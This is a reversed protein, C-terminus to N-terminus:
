MSVPIGVLDVRSFHKKDSYDTRQQKSEQLFSLMLGRFNSRLQVSTTAITKNYMDFMVPMPLYYTVTSWMKGAQICKLNKDLKIYKCYGWNHCLELCAM